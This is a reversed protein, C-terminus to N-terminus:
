KTLIMRKTERKEGMQLVLFYMGAPLSGAELNFQHEGESQTEAPLPTAVLKGTADMLSMAVSQEADLAYTVTTSGSFPNPAIQLNSSGASAEVKAIPTESRDGGDGQLNGTCGGIKAVFTCGAFADFGPRLTISDGASFTAVTPGYIDSQASIWYQTTHSGYVVDSSFFTQPCNMGQPVIGFIAMQDLNYNRIGPTLDNLLFLGNNSGSWGWNMHFWKDDYGDCVWAHGPSRYYVPIGSNISTQLMNHWENETYDDRELYDGEEYYFYENLADPVDSSSAESGSVGYNMEVSLGAHFMLLAMNVTALSPHPLTDPMNKWDYQGGGIMGFFNGQIDGEEDAYEVYKSGLNGTPWEWYRMIQAMATAVCGTAGKQGAASKPCWYNYPDGQGWVTKILPHVTRNGEAVFYTNDELAAWANLTEATGILRKARIEVIQKSYRDMWSSIQTPMNEYRFKNSTSYGLVPPANKDGAVIVFGEGRLPELVFYTEQGNAQAINDPPTILRMGTVPEQAKSNFFQLAVQKATELSVSQAGAQTFCFLLAITCLILQKKM